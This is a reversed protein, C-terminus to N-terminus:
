TLFTVYNSLNSYLVLIVERFTQIIHKFAIYKSSKKAKRTSLCTQRFIFSSILYHFERERETERGTQRDGQRDEQSDEQRDGQRDGQRDTKRDTQTYKNRLESALKNM